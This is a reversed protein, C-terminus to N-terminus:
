RRTKWTIATHPKPSSKQIRNFRTREPFKFTLAGTATAVALVSQRAEYPM